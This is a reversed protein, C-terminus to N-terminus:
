GGFAPPIDNDQVITRLHCQPSASGFLLNLLRETYTGFAAQQISTSRPSPCNKSPIPPTACREEIARLESSSIPMFEAEVTTEDNVVGVM